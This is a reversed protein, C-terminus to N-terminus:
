CRQGSPDAPCSRVLFREGTRGPERVTVGRIGDGNKTFAVLRGDPSAVGDGDREAPAGAPRLDSGDAAVSMWRLAARRRLMFDRPSEDTRPAVVPTQQFLIRQGGDIWRPDESSIATDTVLHLDTGGAGVTGVAYRLRQGPVQAVFLIVRGDPSFAPAEQTYESAALRHQGSGDPRMVYLQAHGDRESYFAIRDGAPTWAPQADNAAGSTLKRLGSGDVGVTYVALKPGDRTSEFAITRGDPSWAANYYVVDVSGQGLSVMGSALAALTALSLLIHFTPM